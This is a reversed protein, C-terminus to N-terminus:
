AFRCNVSYLYYDIHITYMYNYVRSTLFIFHHLYKIEIIRKFYFQDFIQPCRLCCYIIYNLLIPAYNLQVKCQIDHMLTLLKKKRFNDRNKKNYVTISKFLCNITRNFNQLYYRKNTDSNM